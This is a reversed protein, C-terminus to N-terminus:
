KSKPYFYKAIYKVVEEVKDFELDHLWEEDSTKLVVGFTKVMNWKNPVYVVLKSGAPLETVLSDTTDNKWSADTWKFKPFNNVLANLTATTTIPTHHGIKDKMSLLPM